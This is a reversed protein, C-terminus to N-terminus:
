LIYLETPSALFVFWRRSEATTVDSPGVIINDHSRRRNFMQFFTLLMGYLVTALYAAAILLLRLLYTLKNFLSAAIFSHIFSYIKISFGCSLFLWLVVICSSLDICYLCDIFLVIDSM